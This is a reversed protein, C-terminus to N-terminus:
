PWAYVSVKGEPLDAVYLRRTAADYTPQLRIGDTKFLAQTKKVALSKADLQVLSELQTDDAKLALVSTADAWFPRQVDQLRAGVNLGPVAVPDPGAFLRSNARDFFLTNLLHGHAQERSLPELSVRGMEAGTELDYAGIMRPRANLVYLRKNKSDVAVQLLGAGDNAGRKFEPVAKGWVPKGNPVDIVAIWGHEPFAVAALGSSAEYDLDGLADGSNAPAGSAISTLAKKQDIDWLFLGSDWHALAILLRREPDIALESPWRNVPWDKVTAQGPKWLHIQSGGLRDLIYRNGTKADVVVGEPGEAVDLRSQLVGNSDFVSVAGDGSEMAFVRLGLADAALQTVQFGVPKTWALNGNAGVWALSGEGTGPRRVAAAIDNGVAVIAETPGPLATRWKVTGGPDVALLGGAALVVTGDTTVAIGKPPRAPRGDPPAPLPIRSTGKVSPQYKVLQASEPGSADVIWLLDGKPSAAIAVPGSLGPIVEITKLDPSYGTVTKRSTNAVWLWGTKLDVAADKVPFIEGEVETGDKSALLTKQDLDYVRIDERHLGIWWAHRHAEDIRLRSTPNDPGAIPVAATPHGVAPDTFSLAPHIAGATLVQGTKADYGLAMGKVTNPVDVGWRAKPLSLVEVPAFAPAAAAGCGLLALVGWM